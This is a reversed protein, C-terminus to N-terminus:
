LSDLARDATRPLISTATTLNLPSTRSSRDRAGRTPSPNGQVIEDGGDLTITEANPPEDLKSDPSERAIAIIRDLPAEADQLQEIEAQGLRAVACYSIVSAEALRLASASDEDLTGGGGGCGAAAACAVALTALLLRKM